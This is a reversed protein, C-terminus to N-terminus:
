KKSPLEAILEVELVFEPSYLQEIQVWTAAPYDGEYYTKRLAEQKKLAEIDTTFVNEKVVNSFNAGFGALSQRLEEYVAKVANDMTGGGVAGSIYITNGVKVAQAYGIAEEGEKNINFKQKNLSADQALVIWPLLAILLAIIFIIWLKRNQKQIVTM